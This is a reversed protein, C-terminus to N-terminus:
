KEFQLLYTHTHVCVLLGMLLYTCVYVCVWGGYIMGSYKAMNSSAEAACLIYYSAVCSYLEPLEVERLVAGQRRFAEVAEEVM